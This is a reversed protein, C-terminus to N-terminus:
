GDTDRAADAKADEILEHMRSLTPTTDLALKLVKELQEHDTGLLVYCQLTTRLVHAMLLNPTRSKGISYMVEHMLGDVHKLDRQDQINM